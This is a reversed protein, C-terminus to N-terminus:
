FRAHQFHPFLVVDCGVLVGFCTRDPVTDVNPVPQGHHFFLRVFRFVQQVCPIQFVVVQIVM